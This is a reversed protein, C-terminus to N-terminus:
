LATNIHLARRGLIGDDDDDGEGSGDNDDDDDDDDDIDEGNGGVLLILLSYGRGRTPHMSVKLPDIWEEYMLAFLLSHHQGTSTTLHVLEM